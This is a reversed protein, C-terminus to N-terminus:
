VEARAFEEVCSGSRRRLLGDLLCHYFCIWCWLLGRCGYGPLQLKQQRKTSGTTGAASRGISPAYYWRRATAHVEAAVMPKRGMM